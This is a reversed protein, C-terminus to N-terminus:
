YFPKRYHTPPRHLRYALAQPRVVLESSLSCSDINFGLFTKQLTLQAPPYIIAQPRGAPELRWITQTWIIIKNEDSFINVTCGNM